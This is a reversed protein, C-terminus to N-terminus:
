TLYGSTINKSLIEFYLNQTNPEGFTDEATLFDEQEGTLSYGRRRYYAILERRVGIVKMKMVTSNFTEKAFAESKEIIMKGLGFTQFDVNVSLMGLWCINGKKELHVCGIIKDGLSALLIVNNKSCIIERVKEESIRIGLLIDAETTWGKKSNEGRYVSNVLSTIGQSQSEEAFSFKLRPLFNSQM